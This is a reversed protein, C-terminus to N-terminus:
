PFFPGSREAIPVLTHDFSNLPALLFFNSALDALGDVFDSYPPSVHAIYVCYGSPLTVIPEPPQLLRRRFPPSAVSGRYPVAGAVDIFFADPIRSNWCCVPGHKIWDRAGDWTTPKAQGARQM